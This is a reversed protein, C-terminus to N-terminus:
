LYDTKRCTQESIMRCEERDEDRIKTREYIKRNGIDSMVMIIMKGRPRKQKIRGDLITKESM